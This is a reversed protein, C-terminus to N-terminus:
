KQVPIPKVLKRWHATWTWPVDSGAQPRTHGAVLRKVLHTGNSLYHAGNVIVEQVAM